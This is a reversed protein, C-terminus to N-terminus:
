INTLKVITLAEEANKRSPFTFESLYIQTGQGAINVISYSM